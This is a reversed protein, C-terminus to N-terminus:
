SSTPIYMAMNYLSTSPMARIFPLPQLAPLPNQCLIGVKVLKAAKGLGVRFVAPNCPGVSGCRLRQGPIGWWGGAVGGVTCCSSLEWGLRVEGGAQPV